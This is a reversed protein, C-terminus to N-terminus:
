GALINLLATDDDFNLLVTMLVGKSIQILKKSITVQCSYKSCQSKRKSLCGTITVEKSGIMDSPYMELCGELFKQGTTIKCLAEQVTQTRNTPLLLTM